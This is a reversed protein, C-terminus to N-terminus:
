KANIKTGYIREKLNPQDRYHYIGKLGILIGFVILIGIEYPSGRQTLPSMDIGSNSSPSELSIIRQQIALSPQAHQNNICLHHLLEHLLHNYLKGHTDCSQILRQGDKSAWLKKGQITAWAPPRKQRIPHECGSPIITHDVGLVLPFRILAM